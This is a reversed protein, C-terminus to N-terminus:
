FWGMRTLSKYFLMCTYGFVTKSQKLKTVTLSVVGVSGLAGLLFGNLVLASPNVVLLATNAFLHVGLDALVVTIPLISVTM